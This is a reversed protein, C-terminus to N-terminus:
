TQDIEDDDDVLYDTLQQQEQEAILISVKQEAQQLAQQCDRSLAIGQEFQKMADDLSLEGQEMQSVLAELQDLKEEFSISKNSKKAAMTVGNNTQTMIVPM